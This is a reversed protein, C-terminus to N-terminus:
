RLEVTQGGQRLKAQPQALATGCDTLAVGVLFRWQVLQDFVTNLQALPERVSERLPPVRAEFAKVEAEFDDLQKQSVGRKSYAIKELSERRWMLGQREQDVETFTKPETLTKLDDKGITPLTTTWHTRLNECPTIPGTTQPFYGRLVHAAAGKWGPVEELIAERRLTIDNEPLVTQGVQAVYDLDHEIKEVEAAASIFRKDIEIFRVKAKYQPTENASGSLRSDCAGNLVLAAALCARAFVSQLM